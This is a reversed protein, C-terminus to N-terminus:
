PKMPSTEILGEVMLQMMEMKKEMMRHFAMMPGMNMRKMEMKGPEGSKMGGAMMQCGPMDKMMKMGDQMSTMNEQMLKWREKPDSTARIKEMLARMKKM